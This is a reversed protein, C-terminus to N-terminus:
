DFVHGLCILTSETQIHTSLVCNAGLAAARDQLEALATETAQALEEEYAVSRGGVMDRARAAIDKFFGAGVIVRSTVTGAYMVVPCADVFPTTVILVEHAPTTMAPPM